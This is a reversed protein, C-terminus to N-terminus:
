DEDDDDEEWDEGDEDEDLDEGDDYIDCYDEIERLEEKSCLTSAEEVYEIDYLKDPNLVIGYEVREFGWFIDEKKIKARYAGWGSYGQHFELYHEIVKRPSAMWSFITTLDSDDELDDEAFYVTMESEEPHYYGLYDNKLELMDLNCAKILGFVDEKTIGDETSYPGAYCWRARYMMRSFDATTMFAKAEMMAYFNFPFRLVHLLIHDYSDTLIDEKIGAKLDSQLSEAEDPNRLAELLAELIAEKEPSCKDPFWWQGCLAPHYLFKDDVIAIDNEDIYRKAIARIKDQYMKYTPNGEACITGQGIEGRVENPYKEYDM